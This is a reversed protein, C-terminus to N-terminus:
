KKERPSVAAPMAGVVMIKQSSKSVIPLSPTGESASWSAAKLHTHASMRFPPSSHRRSDDILQRILLM